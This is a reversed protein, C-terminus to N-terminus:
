QRVYNKRTSHSNVLVKVANGINRLTNPHKSCVLLKKEMDHDFHGSRFLILKYDLNRQIASLVELSEIRREPMGPSFHPSFYGFGSWDKSKM